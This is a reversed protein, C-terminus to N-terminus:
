LSEEDTATDRLVCDPWKPGRNSGELQELIAENRLLGATKLAELRKAGPPMNQAAAVAKEAAITLESKTPPNRSAGVLVFALPSLFADCDPVANIAVRM